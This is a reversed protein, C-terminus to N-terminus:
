PRLRAVTVVFRLGVTACPNPSPSDVPLARLLVRVAGLGSAVERWRHPSHVDRLVSPCFGTRDTNRGELVLDQLTRHRHHDALDVLLLKAVERVAKARTAGRM